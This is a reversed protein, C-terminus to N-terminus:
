RRTREKLMAEALDYCFKAILEHDPELGCKIKKLDEDDVMWLGLAQAAFYDRLEIDNV